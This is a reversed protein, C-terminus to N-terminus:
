HVPQFAWHTARAKIIGEPTAAQGLASAPASETGPWPAGIKVWETLTGIEAEALKQKPPMKIVDEYGIVELLRSEDPKGGVVAPGSENGKLLAARSDLRLGGEQKKEGHCELCKAVLLPRVKQEFFAEQESVAKPTGDIKAPEGARALGGILLSVFLSALSAPKPM